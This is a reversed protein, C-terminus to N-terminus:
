AADKPSKRAAIQDLSVDPFHRRYFDAEEPLFLAESGSKRQPAHERFLQHRPQAEILAQVLKAVPVHQEDFRVVDNCQLLVAAFKAQAPTLRGDEMFATSLRVAEDHARATSLEQFRAKWDPEPLDPLDCWFRVGDKFLRATAVRPRRVLSVEVIQGLDKSLGLSLSRAGSREVLANAEESLSITGFLENGEASVDTLFGLELPSKAHEILVPVPEGFQTALMRLDTESVTVGKDPYDGAEFLKARREVWKLPPISRLPPALASASFHNM